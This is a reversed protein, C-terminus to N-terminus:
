RILPINRYLESNAATDFRHEAQYFRVVKRVPLVKMFKVVYVQKFKLEDGDIGLKEKLMNLAETDSLNGRSQLFSTAL